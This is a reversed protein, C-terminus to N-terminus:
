SLNPIAPKSSATTGLKKPQVQQSRKATAAMESARLSRQSAAIWKPQKSHQSLPQRLKPKLHSFYIKPKPKQQQKAPRCAKPQRQTVPLTRSRPTLALPQQKTKAFSIPPQFVVIRLITQRIQHLPQQGQETLDARSKRLPNPFPNSLEKENRSEKLKRNPKINVSLYGM